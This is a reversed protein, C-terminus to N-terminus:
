AKEGKLTTAAPRVADIIRTHAACRCLNNDMGHIIEKRAPEPNERLLRYATVIMGPTCFGCRMTNHEVFAQQLPHLAANKSLGEITRVKRGNANRVPYVCARVAKNDVLVTCAGRHAQGCGFKTGPLGFDTRLGWLLPRQRDTTVSGSKDNLTLAITEAM